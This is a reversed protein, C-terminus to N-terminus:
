GGPSPSASKNRYAVVKVSDFTDNVAYVVPMQIGTEGVTVTVVDSSANPAVITELAANATYYEGMKEESTRVIRATASIMGALIMLALTSILLAVLVEGITEGARGSLKRKIIKVQCWEAEM